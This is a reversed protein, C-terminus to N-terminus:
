ESSLLAPTAFCRPSAPHAPPGRIAFATATRRGPITNYVPRRARAEEKKDGRRVTCNSTHSILARRRRLHTLHRSERAGAQSSPEDRDWWVVGLPESEFELLKYAERLERDPEAGSRRRSLVGSATEIRRGTRCLLGAPPECRGPFLEGCLNCGTGPPSSAPGPARTGAGLERGPWQPRM